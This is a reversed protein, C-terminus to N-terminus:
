HYSEEWWKDVEGFIRKIREKERKIDDMMGPSSSAYVEAATLGDYLDKAETQYLNRQKSNMGQLQDLVNDAESMLKSHYEIQANMEEQEQIKEQKVVQELEKDKKGQKIKKEEESISEDSETKERVIEKEQIIIEETIREELKIQEEIERLRKLREKPSLKEIGKLLEEKIVM